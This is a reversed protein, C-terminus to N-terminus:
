EAESLSGECLFMQRYTVKFRKCECNVCIKVSLINSLSKVAIIVHSFLSYFIEHCEM